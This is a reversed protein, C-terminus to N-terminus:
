SIGLAEMILAIIGDGLYFFIAFFVTFAIVTATNTLLQKKSLWHVQKMEHRIGKITCWDRFRVKVKDDLLGTKM